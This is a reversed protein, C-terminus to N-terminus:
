RSGLTLGCSVSHVNLNGLAGQIEPIVLVKAIENAVIDLHDQWDHKCWQVFVRFPVPVPLDGIM